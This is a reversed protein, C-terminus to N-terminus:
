GIAADDCLLFNKTRSPIGATKSIKRVDKKPLGIVTQAIVNGESRGRM